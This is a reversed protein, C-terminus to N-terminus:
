SEVVEGEGKAYFIMLAQSRRDVSLISEEQILREKRVQEPRERRGANFIAKRYVEFNLFKISPEGGRLMKEQSARTVSSQEKGGKKKEAM